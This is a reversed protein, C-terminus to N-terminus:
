KRPDITDPLCKQTCMDNGIGSISGDIQLEITEESLTMARDGWIKKLTEFDKKHRESCQEYTQFANIIHWKYPLGSGTTSTGEWLVWSSAANTSGSILVALIAFFTTKM